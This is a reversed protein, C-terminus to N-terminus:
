IECPNGGVSILDNRDGGVSGLEVFWLISYLESNV